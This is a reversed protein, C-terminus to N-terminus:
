EEKLIQKINDVNVKINVGPEVKGDIAMLVVKALDNPDLLTNQNENPFLSYRMKSVTRGPSICYCKVGSKYWCQTAMIVGAKSACYSSWDEHIKTGASSGINIITLNPNIQLCIASCIFIGKLNVDITKIDDEIKSNQIYSPKVYGANNILIDPHIKKFYNKASEISSVDLVEKSPCFVKFEKRENLLDAISKAIDGNGGTIIVNIM